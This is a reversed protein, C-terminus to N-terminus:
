SKVASACLRHHAFLTRCWASFKSWSWVALLRGPYVKLEAWSLAVQLRPWGLGPPVSDDVPVAAVGEKDINSTGGHYPTCM